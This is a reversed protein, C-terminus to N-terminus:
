GTRAHPWGAQEDVDHIPDALLFDQLDTYKNLKPEVFPQRPTVAAPLEASRARDDIVAEILLDEGRLQDVFAGVVADVGAPVGDFHAAIRAGVDDPAVGATLLIWIEAAVGDLSFYTGSGLHILIIEGDISEAVVHPSNVALVPM